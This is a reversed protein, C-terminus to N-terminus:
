PNERFTLAVMFMKPSIESRVSRVSRMFPASEM